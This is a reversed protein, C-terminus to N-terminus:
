VRQWLTCISFWGVMLLWTDTPRFIYTFDSSRCTFLQYYGLSYGSINHYSNKLGHKLMGERIIADVEFAPIGPRMQAFQSDQLAIIAQATEIIETTPTGIYMPRMIRAAYGQYQPILEVHLLDNEQLPEDDLLAHMKSDDLSKTVPGVVSPDGGFRIIQEAAIAVCERASMGPELRELVVRMSQDAISAAKRLYFIEKASKCARARKLYDSIDIFSSDPFKQCLAQYRKITLVYSTEDIGIRALPWRKKAIVDVVHDISEEWDKFGVIERIWSYDRCTGEDATRVVMVPEGSRPILCFQQFGESMAYGAFYVLMEPQDIFLIDINEQEMYAQLGAYRELYEHKEFVMMSSM